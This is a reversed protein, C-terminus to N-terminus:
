QRSNLKLSFIFGFFDVSFVFFAVIFLILLNLFSFLDGTPFHSKETFFPPFAIPYSFITFRFRKWINWPFIYYSSNKLSRVLLCYMEIQTFQYKLKQPFKTLGVGQSSSQSPSSKQWKERRRRRWWRRRHESIGLCNM